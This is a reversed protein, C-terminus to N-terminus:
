SPDEEADDSDFIHVTRYVVLYITSKELMRM